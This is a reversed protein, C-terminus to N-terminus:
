PIVTEADVTNARSAQRTVTFTYDQHSGGKGQAERLDSGCLEGSGQEKLNMYVLGAQAWSGGCEGDGSGVAPMHGLNEGGRGTGQRSRRM